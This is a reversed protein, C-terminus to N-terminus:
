LSMILNTSDWLAVATIVVINPFAELTDTFRKKITATQNITPLSNLASLNIFVHIVTKIHLTTDVLTAASQPASSPILVNKCHKNGINPRGNHNADAYM